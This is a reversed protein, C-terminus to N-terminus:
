KILNLIEKKHNMITNYGVNIVIGVLIIISVVIIILSVLSIGKNKGVM